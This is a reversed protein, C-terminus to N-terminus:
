GLFMWPFIESEERNNDEDLGMLFNRQLTWADCLHIVSSIFNSGKVIDSCVLEDLHPILQIAIGIM